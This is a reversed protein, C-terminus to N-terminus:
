KRETGAVSASLFSHSSIHRVCVRVSQNVNSGFIELGKLCRKHWRVLWTWFSVIFARGHVKLHSKPGAQACASPCIFFLCSCASVWPLLLRPCFLYSSNSHLTGEKDLAGKAPSRVLPPVDVCPGLLSFWVVHCCVGICPRTMYFVREMFTACRWARDPEWCSSSTLLAMAPSEFWSLAPLIQIHAACYLHEPNGLAAHM